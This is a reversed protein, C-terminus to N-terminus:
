GRKTKVPMIVTGRGIGAIGIQNNTAASAIGAVHTGHSYPSSIPPAPNNDNDAADWGNIDDVYGNNDDDINNGPIENSNTWIVASLDEHDMFVADDVVAIVVNQSGISVDWADSASIKDLHWLQNFLPDNPVDFMEYLPVDEVYEMIGLSLLYDYLSLLSLPDAIVKYTLQLKKDDITTFPCYIRSVNFAELKQELNPDPFNSSAALNGSEYQIYLQHHQDSLKFFLANEEIQAM